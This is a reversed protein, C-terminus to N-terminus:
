SNYYMKLFVIVLKPILIKLLSSYFKIKSVITLFLQPLIFILLFHLCNTRLGFIVAFVNFYDGFVSAFSFIIAFGYLQRVYKNDPFFNDNYALVLMGLLPLDRVVLLPTSLEAMWWKRLVGEFLLLLFYCWALRRALVKRPSHAEALEIGLSQHHRVTTLAM